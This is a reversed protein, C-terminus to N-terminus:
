QSAGVDGGASATERRRGAEAAGGARCHTM